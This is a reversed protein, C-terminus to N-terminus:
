QYYEKLVNTDDNNNGIEQGPAPDKRFDKVTV